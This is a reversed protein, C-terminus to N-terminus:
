SEAVHPWCRCGQDHRPSAEVERLADALAKERAQEITYESPVESWRRVENWPRPEVGADDARESNALLEALVDPDLADIITRAHEHYVGARAIDARDDGPEKDAKWLAAALADTLAKRDTM